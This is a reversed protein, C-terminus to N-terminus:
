RYPTEPSWAPPEGPWRLASGVTATADPLVRVLRYDIVDGTEPDMRLVTMEAVHSLPGITPQDLAAGATSSSVYRTGHGVWLPGIRRHVHGSVQAPVCGRDLAADGAAPDHVLLLDVDDDRCAADALSGGVDALTRTGTLSTGSGIRTARPDADGLIRIGDVDVIDGELLRVGAARAQDATDPGDHNGTVAVMTVGTPLVDTFATVCYGEVASGNITTDGANLVVDAGALEAVARVPGAMGVNCHLDSVVLLVVPEPADKEADAADGADGDDSSGGGDANGGADGPADVPSSWPRTAAAIRQDLDARELWAEEVAGTAAAYFRENDRYADVVYGGYTDIVGALRGTIRAGELPTGDFVASTRGPPPAGSPQPGSGTVTGVVLVVATGAAALGARHPRWQAVLEARRASGLAARGLAFSGGVVLAAALTRRIVDDVLARVAADVSQGPGNFFQVYDKLDGALSDLTSAANVSRLDRPIEQVVVRAGLVPVPSDMVITGLPGLDVTVAADLTVEYRATHPGLTGRASATGVGWAGCVVLLLVLAGAWRLIRGVPLPEHWPRRPVVVSGSPAASRPVSGTSGARAPPIRRAM